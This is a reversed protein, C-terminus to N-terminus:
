LEGKAYRLTLWPFFSYSAKWTYFNVATIDFRIITEFLTSESLILQIKQESKRQIFTVVDVGFYYEDRSPIGEDLKKKM